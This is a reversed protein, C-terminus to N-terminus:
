KSAPADIRYLHTKSRLYFSKGAVAPTAMFGDDLKNTALIECTRGPTIVTTKGQVSFFYLKGDGYIPSAEYNGGLREQWIENGTKADLCSLMGDNTVMYFLDGVRIASPELPVNAGSCKWAVHTDTVDGKGDPRVAWVEAKGRGTMLYVLGEGAVPSSAPSYAANHTKWIEKGTRPDYAYAASSSPSILQPKGAVEMILPTCFAKRFDGDRKPKGQEDLDNWQTTRDTKWVTKGTKKDLAVVYQVDAGDMTLILLNEFLIPSSGPGRYHRCPLDDRKWVVKRTATDLCATGYSGFSLYVRGREIVPTPSAYTNVINGLPEPTDCHFLKENLLIQGSEADVGIAFFDNGELTATTFWIQGDRVVPSSWGQPPIPTKWKVNETESWQVPLGRPSTTNERDVHGNQYPGRFAPWEEKEVKSSAAWALDSGAGILLLLAQLFFIWLFRVHHMM